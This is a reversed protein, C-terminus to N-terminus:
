VQEETWEGVERLFAEAADLHGRLERIGKPTLTFRHHEVRYAGEKRRMETRIQAAREPTAILRDRYVEGVSTGNKRRFRRSATVIQTKTVRLVLVDEGERGYAVFVRQGAKIDEFYSM